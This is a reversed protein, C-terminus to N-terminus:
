EQIELYVMSVREGHRTSVPLSGEKRFLHPASGLNEGKEEGAILVHHTSVVSAAEHLVLYILSSQGIKTGRAEQKFALLIFVLKHM